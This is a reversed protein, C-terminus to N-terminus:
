RDGRAARADGPGHDLDIGPREPQRPRRLGRAADPPDGRLDRRSRPGPLRLALDRRDEHGHAPRRRGRADHLPGAPLRPVGIADDEDRRPGRDRGRGRYRRPDRGRDCGTHGGRRPRVRGAGTRRRRRDLALRARARQRDRSRGPRVRPLPAAFATAYSEISGGLHDIAFAYATNKMTDTAVVLSNDGDTHAAM